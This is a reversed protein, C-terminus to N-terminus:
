QIYEYRHKYYHKNIKKNFAFPLMFSTLTDLQFVELGITFLVGGLAPGIVFGLSFTTFYKGMWAGRESSPVSDVLLAEATPFVAGTAAGEIIRLIFLSLFDRSFGLM